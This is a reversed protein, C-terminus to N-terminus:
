GRRADLRTKTAFGAKTWVARLAQAQFQLSIQTYSHFQIFNCVNSERLMLKDDWVKRYQCLEHGQAVLYDSHYLIWLFLGEMDVNQPKEKYILEM